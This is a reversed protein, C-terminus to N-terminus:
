YDKKYIYNLILHAFGVNSETNEKKWSTFGSINKTQRKFLGFSIFKRSFKSYLTVFSILYIGIIDAAAEIAKQKTKEDTM